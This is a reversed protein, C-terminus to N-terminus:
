VAIEAACFRKLRRDVVFPGFPLFAAVFVAVSVAWPLRARWRAWVLVSCLAVFLVGHVWGVIHVAEPRGAVYKLPMAVGLLVLFSVGEALSVARLVAVIRGPDRTM